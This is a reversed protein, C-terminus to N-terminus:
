IAGESRLRSIAAEDYGFEALIATTSAGLAEAASRVRTPTRSFKAAPGVLPARTGDHLRTTQLMDRSAVHPEAAADAYTNVRTAPLADAEFASVVDEVRRVACWDALLRDVDARHELRQALTAYRPDEALDDRGLLAALRKWHADILIGAFVYGDSCRYMNTPASVTFQNGMRPLPLDLAGASLNGNSQFLLADILAVDVHQGEGTRDRHRLAALAGLAAHVGALDDGLYTAAKVPTGDPEGNLSSFGSYNQAIPDYGVREALPGFQGFGSVSVYVIDPKVARVHEYGVGWANMTGPRFNEVVVDAHGALDLFLDRGARTSLNLTLSQKNRNVTEHPLSLSEPSGPLLPRLRRGIEGTPHEVKIVRAGFDALVCGAMPGAWTTTAELVTIGDLPGTLDTRANRYFAAKEM